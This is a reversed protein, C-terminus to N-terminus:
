VCRVPSDGLALLANQLYWNSSLIWASSNIFIEPIVENYHVKLLKHCVECLIECLDSVNRTEKLSGCGSSRAGYVASKWLFTSECGHNGRGRGGSVLSACKGQLRRSSEWLIKNQYTKKDQLTEGGLLVRSMQVEIASNVLPVPKFLMDQSPFLSPPPFPEVM